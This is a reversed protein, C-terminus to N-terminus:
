PLKHSEFDHSTPKSLNVPQKEDENIGEVGEVPVYSLYTFEYGIQEFRKRVMQEDLIPVKCKESRGRHAVIRIMWPAESSMSMEVRSLHIVTCYQYIKHQPTCPTEFQTRMQIM